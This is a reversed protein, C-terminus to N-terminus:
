LNERSQLESTHEESRHEQCLRRVTDISSLPVYLFLPARLRSLPAWQALAELTNVSETTEVEVTGQLKRGREPSYLVLDPYLRQYIALADHLSLSISRT